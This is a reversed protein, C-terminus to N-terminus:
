EGERINREEPLETTRFSFCLSSIPLSCDPFLNHSLDSKAGREGYPATILAVVRGVGEGGDVEVVTILTLCLGGDVQASGPPAALRSRHGVTTLAADPFPAQQM